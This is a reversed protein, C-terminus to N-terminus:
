HQAVCQLALLSLGLWGPGAAPMRQVLHAPAPRALLVLLAQPDLARMVGAKELDTGHVDQARATGHTALPLKQRHLLGM